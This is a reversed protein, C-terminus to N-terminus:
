SSLLQMDPYGRKFEEFDVTRKGELQVKDMVFKGNDLHGQVIKLRKKEGDVTVYTWVGPWPKLARMKRDIEEASMKNLDVLGDDKYLPKTFTAAEHDQPKLRIRDSLYNPILEVLFQASLQFLRNRLVENTDDPKIEEKFSSIIPGHDMKSDMKIISLGTVKDGNLISAQVPSTGRYKPLLSPHINLIGNKFHNIVSQPIIVGYSAVIGLNAEPLRHSLDTIVEIKRKHAWHDVPSFTKEQNRGTPKPPQTVVAVLKYSKNLAELVPTVYEPTGFFIIKNM